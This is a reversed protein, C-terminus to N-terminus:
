WKVSDDVVSSHIPFLIVWKKAIYQTYNPITEPKPNKFGWIQATATASHTVAFSLVSWPSEDM